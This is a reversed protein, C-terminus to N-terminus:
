ELKDVNVRTEDSRAVLLHQVSPLNKNNKYLRSDQRKKAKMDKLEKLLSSCCFFISMRVYWLMGDAAWEKV